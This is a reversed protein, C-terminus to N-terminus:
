VPLKQVFSWKQAPLGEKIPNSEIYAIRDRVEDLTSLFVIYPARTWVEHEPEVDPFARIAKRSADVLRKWMTEARERHARICFHVHNRCIACAWVTYRSEIVQFFAEGLAQRKAHDFWIPQHKLLPEARRYFDRLEQKPPQIRKRGYHSPGLEALQDQKLHTSGSGRIDNPLWHGYGTLIIHHAIVRRRKPVVEPSGGLPLRLDIDNLGDPDNPTPPM